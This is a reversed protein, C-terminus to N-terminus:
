VCACLCVCLVVCNLDKSDGLLFNKTCCPLMFCYCSFFCLFVVVFILSLAGHLESYFLLAYIELILVFACDGITSISTSSQRQLDELHFHLPLVEVYM